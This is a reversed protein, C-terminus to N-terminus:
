VQPKAAEVSQEAVSGAEHVQVAAGLQLGDITSQLEHVTTKIVRIEPLQQFAEVSRTKALSFVQPLADQADLLYQYHEKTEKFFQKLRKADANLQSQAEMLAKASADVQVIQHAARTRIAEVLMREEHLHEFLQKLFIFIEAAYGTTEDLLRLMEPADGGKQANLVHIRMSLCHERVQNLRDEQLSISFLSPAIRAETQALQEHWLKMDAVIAVLNEQGEGMSRALHKATKFNHLLQLLKQDISGGLYKLKVRLAEIEIGQREAERGLNTTFTYTHEVAATAKLLSLKLASFIARFHETVDNIGQKIDELPESRISVQVTLDGKQIRALDKSLAKLHGHLDRLSKDGPSSTQRSEIIFQLGESIFAFENKQLSSFDHDPDGTLASKIQAQIGHVPIFFRFYWFTFFLIFLGLSILFCRLLERKFGEHARRMASKSEGLVQETGDEVKLLDVSNKSQLVVSYTSTAFYTVPFFSLVLLPFIVKLYLNIHFKPLYHFLHSFKM